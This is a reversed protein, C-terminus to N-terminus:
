LRQAPRSGIYAKILFYSLSLALQRGLRVYEAETLGVTRHAGSSIFTYVDALVSEQQGDLFGVEVLLRLASGWKKSRLEDGSLDYSISRAITELAIRVNTLCNNMDSDIFADASAVLRDIVTGCQSLGSQRVAATLEDDIPHIGEIQPEVAVFQKMPRDYEDRAVAFGDLALSLLLEKWREDFVHRPSVDNRFTDATRILENLIEGIQTAPAAVIHDRITMVWAQHRWGADADETPLDHKELLLTADTRNLVDLFQCLAYKSRRSIEM